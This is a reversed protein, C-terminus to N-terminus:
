AAAPDGHALRDLVHAVKARARATLAREAEQQATELPHAHLATRAFMGDDMWAAVTPSAVHELWGTSVALWRVESWPLIESLEAALDILRDPTVAPREGAGVMAAGPHLAAAAAWALPQGRLAGRAAVAELWLAAFLEATSAPAPRTPVGIARQLCELVVGEAPPSDDRAGDSDTLRSAVRGHRDVVTAVRVRRRDPQQSPRVPGVSGAWGYCLAGIADWGDPAVFGMLTHAPHDPLPDIHVQPWGTAAPVHILHHPGNWTGADAPDDPALDTDLRDLAETLDHLVARTRTEEITHLPPLSTSM